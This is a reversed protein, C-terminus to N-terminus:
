KVRFSGNNVCNHIFTSSVILESWLSVNGINVSTISQSLLVTIKEYVEIVIRSKAVRSTAGQLCGQVSCVKLDFMKLIKSAIKSLVAFSLEVFM